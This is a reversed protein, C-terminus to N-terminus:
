ATWEMVPHLSPPTLTLTQAASAEQEPTPLPRSQPPSVPPTPSPPYSQPPSVPPPPSPPHSQPPPVPPTLSPHKGSPPPFTRQINSTPPCFTEQGRGVHAESVDDGGQVCM